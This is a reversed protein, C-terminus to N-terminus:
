RESGGLSQFSMQQLGAPQNCRFLKTGELRSNSVLLLELYRIDPVAQDSACLLWVSPGAANNNCM